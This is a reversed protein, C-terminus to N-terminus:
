CPKSKLNDKKNMVCSLIRMSIKNKLTRKFLYKMGEKNAQKMHKGM